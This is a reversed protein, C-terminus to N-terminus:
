LHKRICNPCGSKSKLLNTPYPSWEYGCKGCRCRIPISSKEYTSLLTIDPFKDAIEKVFTSHDKKDGSCLKCGYKSKVRNNVTTEYPKHEPNPCKWVVSVESALTVQDPKLINSEHWESVLDPRLFALSTDDSIQKGHCVACKSKRKIRHSIKAHYSHPKGYNCKWWYENSSDTLLVDSPTLGKNGIHEYDWEKALEPYANALTNLEHFGGQGGCWKCGKKQLHESPIQPFLGHIPCIINVQTKSDVYNVTSYDYRDGHVEMAQEIWEETTYKHRKACWDCGYGNSISKVPAVRKHNPNNICIWAVPKDSMPKVMEPTLPYNATYDWKAKIKSNNEQYAAFSKHYPLIHLEALIKNRISDIDIVVNNSIGAKSCLDNLLVKLVNNLDQYNYTYKCEYIVCKEDIMLTCNNERIRFLSIGGNFLLHNKEVDKKYKYLTKHYNEGDYEIGINLSPIFVDVEANEYKYGNIADPFLQKVYYFIVQEPFSSQAGKACKPCGRNLLHRNDVRAKWEHGCKACKWMVQRNYFAPINKAIIGVNRTPHLEKALTPNLYELSHCEKCYAIGSSIRNNATNEYSHGNPCKWWYRIKNKTPPIKDPDEKNKNYDWENEIIEPYKAKLSNYGSIIYRGLCVPCKESETKVKSPATRNCIRKPYSQNCIPCIWYVVNHQGETLLDPYLGLESNKKFDWEQM